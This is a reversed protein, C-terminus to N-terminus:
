KVEVPDHPLLHSGFERLRVRAVLRDPGAATLDPRPTRPAQAAHVAVPSEHRHPCTRGGETPFQTRGTDLIAVTLDNLLVCEAADIPALIPLEVDGSGEWFGPCVDGLHAVLAERQQLAYAGTRTM